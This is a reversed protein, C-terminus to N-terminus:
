TLKYVKGQTGLPDAVVAISGAGTVGRPNDAIRLASEGLQIHDWPTLDGKSNPDGVFYLNEGGARPPAGAALRSNTCCVLFSFSLLASLCLRLKNGSHSSMVVYGLM